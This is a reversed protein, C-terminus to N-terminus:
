GFVDYREVCREIGFITQSYRLSLLFGGSKREKIFLYLWGSMNSAGDICVAVLKNTDLNRGKCTDIFAKCITSGKKDPTHVLKLFTSHTKNSDDDYYQVYFIVHEEMAVDISEDAM